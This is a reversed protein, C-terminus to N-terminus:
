YRPLRCSVDDVRTRSKFKARWKGWCPAIDVVTPYWYNPLCAAAYKSGIYPWYVIRTPSTHGYERCGCGLQGAAYGSITKPSPGQGSMVLLLTNDPEDGGVNYSPDAEISMTLTTTKFRGTKNSGIAHVMAGDVETEYTVYSGRVKYSKNVLGDIWVAPEAGEDYYAVFLRGYVRQTKYKRSGLSQMNDVVAPVKLVMKLAYEDVTAPVKQGAPSSLAAAAALLFSALRM